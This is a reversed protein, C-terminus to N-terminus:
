LLNISLKIQLLEACKTKKTYKTLENSIWRGVRNQRLKSNTHTHADIYIIYRQTRYIYVYISNRLSIKFANTNIIALDCKRNNTKSRIFYHVIVSNHHRKKDFVNFGALLGTELIIYVVHHGTIIKWSESETYVYLRERERSFTKIFYKWIHM